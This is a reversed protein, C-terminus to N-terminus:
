IEDVSAGCRRSWDEVAADSMTWRLVRHLATVLEVHEGEPLRRSWDVVIRM